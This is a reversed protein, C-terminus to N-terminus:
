SDSPKNCVMLMFCLNDFYPPCSPLDYVLGLLLKPLLHRVLATAEPGALPRALLTFSFDCQELHAGPAGPDARLLM